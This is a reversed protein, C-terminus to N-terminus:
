EFIIGKLIKEFEWKSLIEKKYRMIQTEYLRLVVDEEKESYDYAYKKIVSKLKDSFDMKYRKKIVFSRVINLELFPNEELVVDLIKTEMAKQYEEDYWKATTMDYVISDMNLFVTRPLLKSYDKKDCKIVNASYAWTQNLLWIDVILDQCVVKYGGFRNLEPSYGRLFDRYETEHETDLIIDIDRLSRIKGNDRIERLVGGILYVHGLKKLKEFLIQAPFHKALYEKLLMEM